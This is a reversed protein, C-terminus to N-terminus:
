KGFLLQILRISIQPHFECKKLHKFFRWYAIHKQNFINKYKLKKVRVFFM